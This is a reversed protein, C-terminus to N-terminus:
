VTYQASKGFSGTAKFELLKAVAISLQTAETWKEKAEKLTPASVIAGGSINKSFATYTGDSKDYFYTPEIKM